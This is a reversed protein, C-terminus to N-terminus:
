PLAPVKDLVDSLSGMVDGRRRGRRQRREMKDKGM